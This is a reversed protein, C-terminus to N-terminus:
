NGQSENRDEEKLATRIRKNIKRRAKRPTYGDGDRNKLAGQSFSGDMTDYKSGGKLKLKKVTKM